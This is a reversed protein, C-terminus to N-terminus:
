LMFIFILVDDDNALVFFEDLDKKGCQLNSKIFQICDARYYPIRGGFSRIFAKLKINTYLDFEDM